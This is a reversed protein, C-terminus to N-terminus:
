PKKKPTIMREILGGLTPSSFNDTCKEQSRKYVYVGLVSLGVTWITTLAAIANVVGDAQEPVFAIIYAVALMQAAWTVAMVYGFTPRMRRVYRDDSAMEQRLTNNIEQIVRYYEASELRAMEEIHRNAEVMDRPAIKNDQFTQDVQQLIKEAQQAMPDNIKGLSRGVFRVM